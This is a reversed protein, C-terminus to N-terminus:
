DRLKLRYLAFDGIREGEDRQYWRDLNTFDVTDAVNIVLYSLTPSRARERNFTGAYEIYNAIQARLEVPTIPAVAGSVPPSLRDYSFMGALFYWDAHELQAWYKKEDYGLYYLQRYFRERNEVETVGPFVLMHPAWLITQPADTPLRDALKLDAMLVVAGTSTQGAQQALSELRNTVPRAEDVGRNYDWSVSAALWVEGSAWVLAGLAVVALRQKSLRSKGASRWWAVTLVVAMLACYNAIYWEYHIPQLSRGTVIQQNFVVFVTMAFAAAMLVGPHRWQLLRRRAGIAIFVLVLLAVFESLRFLDPRRTLLLAQTTDLAAARHSLLRWYPILAALAGAFILAFVIGTRRRESKRSILWLAWVSVLWALVTTWLYFYSFIILFFLLGAGSAAIIAQRRTARTLALWVLACLVFFAPFAVAPQYLRLFPLGYLSPPSVRSSIWLPILYNLNLVHRVIGQGAILSGFGLIFPVAAASFKEDRTLLWVFWFIALSVALACLAPLIIFAATASLGLVRSPLAVTYAPVFQISFLSEPAPTSQDHRGTYPDSRRPHGRILSALYASYAVEDPHTIANAGNWASGRHAVLHIQPFLSVLLMAVAAGVGWRWSLRATTTERKSM